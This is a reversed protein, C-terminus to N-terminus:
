GKRLEGLMADGHRDVQDAFSRLWSSTADKGAAILMLEVLALQGAAAIAGPKVGAVMLSATWKGLQARIEASEQLDTMRDM